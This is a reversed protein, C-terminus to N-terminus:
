KGRKKSHFGLSDAATHGRPWAWARQMPLALEENWQTEAGVADVPCLQQHGDQFQEYQGSQQLMHVM